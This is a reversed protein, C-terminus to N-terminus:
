VEESGRKEEEGVKIKGFNPVLATARHPQPSTITQQKSKKGDGDARSSARAIVSASTSSSGVVASSASTSSPVLPPQGVAKTFGDQIICCISNFRMFSSDGVLM